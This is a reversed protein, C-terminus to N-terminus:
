CCYAAPIVNPCDDQLKCVTCCNNHLSPCEPILTCLCAHLCCKAGEGVDGCGSLQILDQMIHLLQQAAFAHVICPLCAWVHM